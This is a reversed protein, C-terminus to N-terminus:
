VESVARGDDDVMRACLTATPWSTNSFIHFSESADVDIVNCLEGNENEEQPLDYRLRWKNDVLYRVHHKGYQLWSAHHKKLGAKDVHLNCPLCQAQM